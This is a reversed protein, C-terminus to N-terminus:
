LYANIHTHIRKRIESSAEEAESVKSFSENVNTNMVTPFEDSLSAEEAETDILDSDNVENVGSDDNIDAEEAQTSVICKAVKRLNQHRNYSSNRYKKEHRQVPPPVM